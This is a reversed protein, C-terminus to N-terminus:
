PLRASSSACLLQPVNDRHEVADEIKHGMQNDSPVCHRVSFHESTRLVHHTNSNSSKIGMPGVVAYGLSTHHVFPSSNTLCKTKMLDNSDRGILVMVSLSSDANPFFKSFRKIKQCNSVEEFSASESLCNPNQFSTM